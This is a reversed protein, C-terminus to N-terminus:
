IQPSFRLTSLGLELWVNVVPDRQKLFACLKEDSTLHLQQIVTSPDLVSEKIFRRIIADSMGVDTITAETTFPHIRELDIGDGICGPPSEPTTLSKRPPGYRKRRKVGFRITWICNEEEKEEEDESSSLDVALLHSEDLIDNESRSDYDVDYGFLQTPDIVNPILWHIMPQHYIDVLRQLVPIRYHRETTCMSYVEIASRMIHGFEYCVNNYVMNVLLSYLMDAYVRSHAMQTHHM